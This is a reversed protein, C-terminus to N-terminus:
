STPKQQTLIEPGFYKPEFEPEVQQTVKPVTRLRETDEDGFHPITISVTLWLATMLILHTLVNFKKSRGHRDLTGLHEM